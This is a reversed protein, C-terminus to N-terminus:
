ILSIFELSVCKSIDQKSPNYYDSFNIVFNTGMKINARIKICWVFCKKLKREPPKKPQHSTLRILNDCSADGDIIIQACYTMTCDMLHTELPM